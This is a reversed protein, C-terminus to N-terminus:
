DRRVAFFGLRHTVGKDDVARLQYVGNPLNSVDAKEGRYPFKAVARGQLTEVFLMDADLAKDRPPLSLQKGDCELFSGPMTFSPPAAMQLPESENGYRDMATVAYFFGEPAHNLRLSNGRRRIAILHAADEIDM